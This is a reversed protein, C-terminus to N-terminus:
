GPWGSKVGSAVATATREAILAAHDDNKDIEKQTLKVAVRYYGEDGLDAKDPFIGIDIVVPGTLFRM